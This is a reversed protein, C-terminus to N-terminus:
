FPARAAPAPPRTAAGALVSTIVLAGAKVDVAEPADPPLLCETSTGDSLGLRVSYARPKGDDGLLYIRGRTGPSEAATGKGSGAAFDTSRPTQLPEVGSLRVRLAANPLKLVDDRQETVIRVNATMGPLLHGGSNNFAVVVVYTVVNAVNQAAQRVQRVEGEFTQGAFADVTFRAKQGVRVRGVDAEDVSSEVQMDSLNQAIIFLEPAQLSAAVTQGKEVARKVVIGEMPSTIRTRALDVRAQALAAQRQAVNAQASRVQAESVGWQAQASKLWEIATNVAAQSKDAESQAIFQQSVLSLHRAHARQAETLETQARSVAAHSVLTGAQATTVLAQAADVDAQASRVRYEFTEPDIQAMLQGAKVVTNFDVHISKIQGSVQTGVTVLSVPNLIGSASVTAALAGREIRATRYQVADAADRQTWWVAGGAVGVLALVGAIWTQNRMCPM